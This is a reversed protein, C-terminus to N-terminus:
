RFFWIFCRWNSPNVTDFEFDFIATLSNYNLTSTSVKLNSSSLKAKNESLFTGTAYTKSAAESGERSNIIIGSFSGTNISPDQNNIVADVDSTFALSTETGSSFDYYVLLPDNNTFSENIAYQIGSVGM